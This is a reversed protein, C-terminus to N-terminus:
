NTGKTSTAKKPALILMMNRGELVPPKEVTCSDGLSDVFRKLLEAGRETRTMERGAFRVVAKVKNGQSLFKAAHNLKTNLDHTDINCKLQIEKIEIIVRKKRQEKEKKEREFRFKGYDMIKCVPPVSDPAIEVLDLGMDNARALASSVSM